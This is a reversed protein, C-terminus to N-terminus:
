IVEKANTSSLPITACTESIVLLNKRFIKQVSQSTLAGHAAGVPGLHVSCPSFQVTSTVYLWSNEPTKHLSHLQHGSSYLGHRGGWNVAHKCM